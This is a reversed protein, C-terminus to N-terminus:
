WPVTAQLVETSHDPPSIRKPDAENVFPRDIKEPPQQLEIRGLSERGLLRQVMGEKDPWVYTM